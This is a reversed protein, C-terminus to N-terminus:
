EKKLIFVEISLNAELMPSQEDESMEKRGEDIKTRGETINSKFTSSPTIVMSAIKTLTELKEIASIFKSLSFYDAKINLNMLLVQYGDKDSLGAPNFNIIEINYRAALGNIKEMIAFSENAPWSLNKFEDFGSSLKNIEKALTIKNQYDTINGQVQILKVKQSDWIKKGYFLTVSLVIAIFILQKQQKINLKDM